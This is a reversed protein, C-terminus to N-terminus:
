VFSANETYLMKSVDNVGFQGGSLWLPCFYNLHFFSHVYLFVGWRHGAFMSELQGRDVM